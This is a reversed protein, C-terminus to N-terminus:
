IGVAQEFQHIQKETKLPHYSQPDIEWTGIRGQKLIIENFALAVYFNGDVSADKRIMNKIAEVLDGARAFWFAGTTAHLSIPNKQAVETVLGANDLRVYSYRPHISRFTLAGGDLSRERFDAIADSFDIDVLENASIVLVEEQPPFRCAALLATCASGRTVKPVRVVLSGPALLEVVGDLHYRDVEEDRLAFTYRANKISQTNSLLREILTVGDFEVLCLPSGGDNTEYGSHGAALVLVNVKM